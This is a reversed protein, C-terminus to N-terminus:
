RIALAALETEELGLTKIARAFQKKAARENGADCLAEGTEIKRLAVNAAKADESQSVAARLDQPLQTCVPEAAMAPGVAAAVSLLSAAVAAVLLPIRSPLSM